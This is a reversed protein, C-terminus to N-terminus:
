YDRVAVMPFGLTLTFTHRSYVYCSQFYGFLMNIELVLLNHNERM